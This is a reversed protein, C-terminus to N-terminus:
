EGEAELLAKLKEAFALTRGLSVRVAVRWLERSGCANAAEFAKQARELAEWAEGAQASAEGVKEVEAINM